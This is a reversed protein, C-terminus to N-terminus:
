AGGGGEGLQGAASGVWRLRRILWGTDGRQGPKKYVGSVPVDSATPQICRRGCM